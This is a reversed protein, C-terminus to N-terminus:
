DSDEDTDSGDYPPYVICATHNGQSREYLLRRVEALYRRAQITGRRWVQEYHRPSLVYQSGKGKLPWSIEGRGNRVHRKLRYAPEWKQTDFRVTSVVVTNENRVPHMCWLGGDIWRRERWTQGKLWTHGAAEPIESTAYLCGILDHNSSWSSICRVGFSFSIVLLFAILAVVLIIWVQALELLLAAIMLILVVAIYEVRPWASVYVHLRGSVEKYLNPNREILLSALRLMRDRALDIGKDTGRGDGKYTSIAEIDARGGRHVIPEARHPRRKSCPCWKRCSSVPVNRKDKGSPLLQKMDELDIYRNWKDFYSLGAVMGASTCYIHGIEVDQKLFEFVVAEHFFVHLGAGSLCVDELYIPEKDPSVHTM